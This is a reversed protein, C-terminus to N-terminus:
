ITEAVWKLYDPNGHIISFAVICPVSYSHLEKVRKELPEFKDATTKAFFAAESDETLAGEWTYISKIAPLINVCAALREEVLIRGVM